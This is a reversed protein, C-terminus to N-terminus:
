ADDTDDAAAGAAAAGSESAEAAARAPGEIRNARVVAYVLFGAPFLYVAFGLVVEIAVVFSCAIWIWRRRPHLTFHVAAAMAILPVLIVPIAWFGLLDWLTETPKAKPQGAPPFKQIAMLGTLVLTLVAGTMVQRGGPVQMRKGIWTGELTDIDVPVDGPRPKRAPRPQDSGSRGGKKASKTSTSAAPTTSAYKAKREEAPIAAAKARAERAERQARNQRARKQKSSSRHDAM